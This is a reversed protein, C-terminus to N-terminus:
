AMPSIVSTDSQSLRASSVSLLSFLSHIWPTKDILGRPRDLRSGVRYWLILVFLLSPAIQVFEPLEPWNPRVSALVSYRGSM